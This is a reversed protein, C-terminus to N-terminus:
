FDAEELVFGGLRVTFPRVPHNHVRKQLLLSLLHESSSVVITGHCGWACWKWGCGMDTQEMNPEVVMKVVLLLDSSPHEVLHLPTKM